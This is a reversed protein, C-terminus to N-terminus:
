DYAMSGGKTSVESKTEKIKKVGDALLPILKWILSRTEINADIFDFRISLLLFTDKIRHKQVM